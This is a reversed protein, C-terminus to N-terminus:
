CKHSILSSARVMESYPSTVDRTIFIFQRAALDVPAVLVELYSAEKYPTVLAFPTGHEYLAALSRQKAADLEAEVNAERRVWAACEEPTAAHRVATRPLM